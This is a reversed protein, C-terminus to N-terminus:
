VIEQSNLYARIAKHTNAIKLDKCTAKIGAGDKNASGASLGATMKEALAKPTIRSAVFAYEPDSAFLRSYHTELIGAFQELNTM